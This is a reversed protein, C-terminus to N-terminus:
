HSPPMTMGLAREAGDVIKGAMAKVLSSVVTFLDSSERYDASFIFDTRGAKHLAMANQPPDMALRPNEPHPDFVGITYGGAKKVVSMCPVDSPGDGIYIMNSFPVRRSSEPMQANVDIKPDHYAGKNIKFLAESKQTHTIANAIGIPKGAADYFFECAEIAKLHLALESGRLMEALGSSVVYHEVTVGYRVFQPNAVVANNINPFFEPIGPYFELKNGAERLAQETVHELPRGPKMYELLLFLYATDPQVLKGSAAHRRVLEDKEAWFARDEIGAAQFLPRQMYHPSLTIDCDYVIAIVNQVM